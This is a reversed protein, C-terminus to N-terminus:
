HVAATLRRRVIGFFASGFQEEALGRFHLLRGVGRQHLAQGIVGRGELVLHEPVHGRFGLAHVLADRDVHRASAFEVELPEHHESDVPFKKGARRLRPLGGFVPLGPGKVQAPVAPPAVAPGDRGVIEFEGELPEEMGIRSVDVGKEIVVDLAGPGVVLPFRVVDIGHADPGHVVVSQDDLRLLGAGEQGMDGGVESGRGNRGPLHLFVSVLPRKGAGAQSVSGELELRPFRALVHSESQVGMVGPGIGTMEALDDAYEVGHDSRGARRVVHAQQGVFVVLDVHDVDAGHDVAAQAVVRFPVFRRPGVVLERRDVQEEPRALGGEVVELDALGEGVGDVLHRQVLRYELAHHDGGVGHQREMEGTVHSVLVPVVLPEVHVTGPLQEGLGAIRVAPTERPHIEPEGVGGGSGGDALRGLRDLLHELLVQVDLDVDPVRFARRVPRGHVVPLEGHTDDPEVVVKGIGVAHQADDPTGLGPAVRAVVPQVRFEVPQDVRGGSVQIVLRAQRHVVLGLPNEGGFGRGDEQPM